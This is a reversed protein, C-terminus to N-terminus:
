DKGFQKDIQFLPFKESGDHKFFLNRKAEMSFVDLDLVGDEVIIFIRNIGDLSSM